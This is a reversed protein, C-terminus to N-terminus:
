FQIVQSRRHTESSLANTQINDSLHGAIPPVSRGSTETHKEQDLVPCDIGGLELSQALNTEMRVPYDQSESPATQYTGLARKM